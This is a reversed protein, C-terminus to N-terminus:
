MTKKLGHLVFGAVNEYVKGKERENLIEHRMGDYLKGRVNKYGVTKMHGIAQSFGSTGGICPDERGAVFLVPLDPRACQWGAETYTKEMLDFLAQYGDVTFTFGCLPSADYNAVVEPDSCCWAFRSKEGSFKRAYSGFTLAEILKARHRPGYVRKELAALLKGAGLLPNKAPSGCVVLLEIDQDYSRAYARVALSGMSHGLLALPTGPYSEKALLTIRHADEIVGNGGQGYMYGLDSRSRVSKGHGRCDHIVAAVGQDAMYEMFPLYREKYEAMGHHIQLIGKVQGEPVTWLVDLNLGDCPSEVREYMKRVM